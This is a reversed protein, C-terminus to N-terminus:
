AGGKPFEPYADHELARRKQEDWEEDTLGEGTRGDYFWDRLPGDPVKTEDFAM